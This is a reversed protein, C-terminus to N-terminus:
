LQRLRTALLVRRQEHVYILRGGDGVSVGGGKGNGVARSSFLTSGNLFEVTGRVRLGGGHQSAMGYGLDTDDLVLKAGTHVYILGGYGATGDSLYLNTLTLTQSAGLEVVGGFAAGQDNADIDVSYQALDEPQTCDASAATMTLDM